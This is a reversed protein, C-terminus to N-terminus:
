NNILDNLFNEADEFLRAETLDDDSPEYGLLYAGQILEIKTM